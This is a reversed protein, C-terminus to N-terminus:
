ACSPFLYRTEASGESLEETAFGLRVAEEVSFRSQAHSKLRNAHAAPDKRKRKVM